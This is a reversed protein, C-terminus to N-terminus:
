NLQEKFYDYLIEYGIGSKLELGMLVDQIEDDNIIKKNYDEALDKIEFEVDLPLGEDIPKISLDEFYSKNCKYCHYKPQPEDEFICCGGLYVKKNQYLEVMESGPMGYVIDVLVNDCIPCKKM